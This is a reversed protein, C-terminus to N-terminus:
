RPRDSLLEGPLRSRDVLSRAVDSLRLNNSRSFSRLTEFAEAMDHRGYEALVGKAQEIVVRTDLATQLQEALLASRHRSRQQLIGITAVDAMTQAIRQDVPPLSPSQTRFLNLGGIVEARLRMPVAHVSAFGAATAAEAFAPWGQSEASLDTVSVVRALRVCDVCPGGEEGQLQLLEIIRTQESTSAMVELQGRPDLLVLGAEDVELLEVCDHVLMDLLEVIDYDDVLTDALAVLRQALRSERERDSTTADQDAGPTTPDTRDDDSM